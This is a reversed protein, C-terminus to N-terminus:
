AVLRKRMADVFDIPIVYKGLIDEDGRRGGHFDSGGSELLSYEHVLSRYYQSNQKSLSPHITEIGDLGKKIFDLLVTEGIADSPHAIFSLGGTLAILDIADQVTLHFKEVYAPRGYALYKHFVEPYSKVMGTQMVANAIHPRGISRDGVADLVTDISVPIDLDNLRNVMERARKIRENRCMSLFTLLREHRIDIFYGLIHIERSEHYASLEIGPIIEVGLRDGTGIAEEIGAVTDHDSVAITTIGNQRALEVVSSPSYAGDSYHTHMHMDAARVLGKRIGTLTPDGSVYDTHNLYTVKDRAV